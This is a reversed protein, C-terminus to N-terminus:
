LNPGAPGPSIWDPRESEALNKHLFAAGEERVKNIGIVTAQDLAQANPDVLTISGTGHIGSLQKVARVGFTGSGLVWITEAM